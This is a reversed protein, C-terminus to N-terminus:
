DLSDLVHMRELKRTALPEALRGTAKALDRQEAEQRGFRRAGARLWDGPGKRRLLRMKRRRRLSHNEQEHMSANRVDVRPVGLWFEGFQVALGQRDVLWLKFERRGAVQQSRGPLKLAVALAADFDAVQKRLDPRADVVDADNARHVAAVLHRVSRGQEVDIGAATHKGAGTESRPREVSQPGLVLVQRSEDAEARRQIVAPRLVVARRKQRSTKLSRPDAIPARVELLRLQRAEHRPVIRGQLAQLEVQEAAAVALMQLPDPFIRPEFGANGGKLHTKPHLRFRWTDHIDAPLGSGSM